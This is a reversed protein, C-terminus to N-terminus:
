KRFLRKGGIRNVHILRDSLKRTDAERKDYLVFVHQRPVVFEAIDEPIKGSQHVNGAAPKRDVLLSGSAISVTQGPLAAVRSIFEQPKPEKPNIVQYIIVDGPSLDDVSQVNRAFYVHENKSIGPQMTEDNDGMKAPKIWTFLYILIVVITLGVLVFVTEFIQRM